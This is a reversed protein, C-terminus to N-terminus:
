ACVIKWSPQFVAGYGRLRQCTTHKLLKLNNGQRVQGLRTILSYTCFVRFGYHAAIGSSCCCTVVQYVAHTPIVFLLFFALPADAPSGSPLLELAHAAALTELPPDPTDVPTGGSGGERGGRGVGRM